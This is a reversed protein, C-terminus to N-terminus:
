RLCRARYKGNTWELGVAGSATNGSFNVSWCIGNSPEGSSSWFEEAPTSPFYIPNIAPSNRELDLLSVLEIMTPLRWDAYGATRQATCYSIADEWVLTSSSATQEWMLKTVNDTVTGDDNSTYSLPNPFDGQTTNPMPWEAWNGDACTPGEYRECVLPTSCTETKWAGCGDSGAECSRVGGDACEKAGLTCAHTCCAGDFCAGNACRM